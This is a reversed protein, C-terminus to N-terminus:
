IRVNPYKESLSFSVVDYLRYRFNPPLIKLFAFGDILDVMFKRGLVKYIFQKLRGQRSKASVSFDPHMAAVQSNAEVYQRLRKIYSRCTITENHLAENQKDFFINFGCKFARIALEKDEADRLLESFGQLRKFTSAKLSCNAATVFLIEKTLEVEGSFHSVWIESLYARYKLFDSSGEHVVQPTNGSVIASDHSLHFAYHREVSNTSPIMDDDYFVLLNGKALRGGSNRAGARGANKQEIVRFNFFPFQQDKLWTVSGDTSGDIVVIVEFDKFSQQQLAALVAPLRQRGQFSPIIVSVEM